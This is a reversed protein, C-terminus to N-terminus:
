SAAHLLAGATVVERSVMKNSNSGTYLPISVCYKYPWIHPLIKPQINLEIKWDTSYNGVKENM